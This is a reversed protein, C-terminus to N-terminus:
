LLNFILKNIEYNNSKKNLTIDSRQTGLKLSLVALIKLINKKDLHCSHEIEPYCYYKNYGSPYFFKVKFDYFEEDFSSIFAM